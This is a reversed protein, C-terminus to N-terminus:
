EFYHSTTIKVLETPENQPHLGIWRLITKDTLSVTFYLNKANVPRFSFGLTINGSPYFQGSTQYIVESAYGLYFEGKIFSRNASAMKRLQKIKSKRLTLLADKGLEFRYLLKEQDSLPQGKNGKKMIDSIYSNQKKRKKSIAIKVNLDQLSQILDNLETQNSNLDAKQRHSLRNHKVSLYAKELIDIESQLEKIEKTLKKEIQKYGFIVSINTKEKVKKELHKRKGQIQKKISLLERSEDPPLEGLNEIAAISDKLERIQKLQELSEKKLNDVPSKNELARIRKDIDRIEKKIGEIEEEKGDKKRRSEMLQRSEGHIYLGINFFVNQNYDFSSNGKDFYQERGKLSYSVMDWSQYSIESLLTINPNMRIRSGVSFIFPTWEVLDYDSWLRWDLYLPSSAVAGILINKHPSFIIGLQLAPFLTFFSNVLSVSSDIAVALGINYGFHLQSGLKFGHSFGLKRIALEPVSFQNLNALATSRFLTSYSVAFSQNQIEKNQRRDQRSFIYALSGFDFSFRYDATFGRFGLESAFEYVLVNSIGTLFAPNNFVVESSLLSASVVRGAAETKAGNVVYSYPRYGYALGM